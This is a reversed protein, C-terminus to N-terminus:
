PKASSGVDMREAAPAERPRSARRAFMIDERCVPCRASKVKGNSVAAYMGKLAQMSLYHMCPHISVFDMDPNAIYCELEVPCEASDIKELLGAQELTYAIAYLLQCVVWVLKYENDAAHADWAWCTPLGETSSYKYLEQAVARLLRMGLPAASLELLRRVITEVNQAEETTAQDLEHFLVFEVVAARHKESKALEFWAQRTVEDDGGLVRGVRQMFSRQKVLRLMKQKQSRVAKYGSMTPPPRLQKLAQDILSDRSQATPFLLAHLEAYKLVDGEKLLGAEIAM